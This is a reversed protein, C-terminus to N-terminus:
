VSKGEVSFGIKREVNPEATEIYCLLKVSSQHLLLLCEKGGMLGQVALGHHGEAGISQVDVAVGGEVLAIIVPQADAPLEKKWARIRAALRTVMEASSEYSHVEEQSPFKLKSYDYRPLPRVSTPLKYMSTMKQALEALEETATKKPRNQDM